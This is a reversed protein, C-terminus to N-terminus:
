VTFSTSQGVDTEKNNYKYLTSPPVCVSFFVPLLYFPIISLNSAMPQDPLFGVSSEAREMYGRNKYRQLFFILSKGFGLDMLKEGKKPPHCMDDSQSEKNRVQVM